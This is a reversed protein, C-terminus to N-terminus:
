AAPPFLLSGYLLLVALHVFLTGAYPIKHRYAAIGSIMALGYGFLNVMQGAWMLPEQYLEGTLPEYTTWRICSWLSEKWSIGLLMGAAAQLLLCGALVAGGCIWDRDAVEKRRYLMWGLVVALFCPYIAVGVSALAVAPIKKGKTWLLYAGLLLGFGVSDPQAWCVGRLYVVPSLLCVVFYFTPKLKERQGYGGAAAVCLFAVAFDAFGCLWKMSHLPLLPLYQMWHVMLDYLASQIHNPHRDFYYGADPSAWWIATRRLYLAIGAALLAMLLFMHKEVWLLLKREIKLM